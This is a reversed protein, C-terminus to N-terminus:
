DNMISNITNIYELLRKIKGKKGVWKLHEIESNIYNKLQISLKYINEDLDFNEDYKYYRNLKLYVENRLLNKIKLEKEDDKFNYYDYCESMFEDDELIEEINENIFDEYIDFVPLISFWDDYDEKGKEYLYEDFDDFGDHWNIIKEEGSSNIFGNEFEGDEVLEKFENYYYNYDDYDIKIIERVEIGFPISYDESIHVTLDSWLDITLNWEKRMCERILDNTVNEKIINRVYEKFNEFNKIENNKMTKDGKNKEKYERMLIM